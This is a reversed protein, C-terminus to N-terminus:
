TRDGSALAIKGSAPVAAAKAKVRNIMTPQATM